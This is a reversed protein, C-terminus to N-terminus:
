IDIKWLKGFRKWIESCKTHNKLDPNPIHCTNLPPLIPWDSRKRRDSKVSFYSHFTVARFSVVSLKESPIGIVISQKFSSSVWRLVPLTSVMKQSWKSSQHHSLYSESRDSSLRHPYSLTWPHNNNNQRGLVEIKEPVTVVKLNITELWM